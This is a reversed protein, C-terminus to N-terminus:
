HGTEWAGEGQWFCGGGAFLCFALFYLAGSTCCLHGRRDKSHLACALLIDLLQDGRTMRTDSSHVKHLIFSRCGTDASTLVKMLKAVKDPNASLNYITFGLASATTEYGGQLVAHCGYSLHLSCSISLWSAAKMCVMEDIIHGFM